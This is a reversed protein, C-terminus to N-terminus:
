SNQLEELLDTLRTVLRNMDQMASDAQHMLVSNAEALRRIEDSDKNIEECAASQEESSAAIAGIKEAADAAHEVIQALSAGASRALETSHEVMDAAQEVSKINDTASKQIGTIVESVEKTALMTKEALKRVEDAVVAFGRGAEGARAAEIAANLALLNTQDAIDTIVGMVHGIGEVQKGLIKMSEQMSSTKRHMDEIATITSHVIEAGCEANKKAERSNDAAASANSAVNIVASSMQTMAAASGAAYERQKETGRLAEAVNGALLACADASEAV